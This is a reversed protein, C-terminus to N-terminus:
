RCTCTSGHRAASQAAISGTMIRSVEPSNNVKWCATGRCVSSVICNANQFSIFWSETRWVQPDWFDLDSGPQTVVPM